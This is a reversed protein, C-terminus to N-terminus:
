LSPHVCLWSLDLLLIKLIQSCIQHEPSLLLHSTERTPHTARGKVSCTMFLITEVDSNTTNCLTHWLLIKFVTKSINFSIIKSWRLCHESNFCLKTVQRKMLLLQFQPILCSPYISPCFLLNVWSSASMQNACSIVQVKLLYSFHLGSFHIPSPFLFASTLSLSAPTQLFCHARPDLIILAPM